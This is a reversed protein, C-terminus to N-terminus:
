VSGKAGGLLPGRPHAAAGGGRVRRPLHPVRKPNRMLDIVRDWVRHAVEDKGLLPLAELADGPGLITVQNTDTGFGAGAATVDNAVVLDCRKERLKRRAEDLVHDTEAAFGVLVPRRKGRRRAGLGALIDANRALPLAPSTGLAEKKLKAEAKQAPRFDSVAAAMVVAHVRAFRAGVAKQMDAASEVPVFDVGPPPALATPGSVLTVSAGRAAAAAALAFGMRGTSRNGLYRVPDLPEHTPGATVLVRRGALDKRELLAEAAAVIAAPDALRGPGVDGCALSGDGPGVLHLRGILGLRELNAQTLPHQWMHVNMAPALLLPARTVLALTTLLDDAMGAALRAILDATAPAVLLLDAREAVQIHSMRSEAGLDFIDTLVPQESLAQMTLEGIFRRAAETMVVQVRAGARRLLRVVEAAKYAAIGGSVGLIVSKGALSSVALL